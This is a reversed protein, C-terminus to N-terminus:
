AHIYHIGLVYICLTAYGKFAEAVEKWRDFAPLDLDVQFRRSKPMLPQYSMSPQVVSGLGDNKLGQGGLDQLRQKLALWKHLLNHKLRRHHEANEAQAPSGNRPEHADAFLQVADIVAIPQRKPSDRPYIKSRSTLALSSPHGYVQLCFGCSPM